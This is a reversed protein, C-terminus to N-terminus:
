WGNLKSPHSSLMYWPGSPSAWLRDTRGSSGRADAGDSGARVKVTLRFCLYKCNCCQRLGGSVTLADPPTPPCRPAVGGGVRNKNTSLGLLMLQLLSKKWPLSDRRGRRGALIDPFAPSESSRGPPM